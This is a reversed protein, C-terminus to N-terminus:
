FPNWLINSPLDMFTGGLFKKESKQFESNASSRLVNATGDLRSHRPCFFHLICPTAHVMAKALDMYLRSRAWFITKTTDLLFDVSRFVKGEM